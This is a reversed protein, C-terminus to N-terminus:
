VLLFSIFGLSLCVFAVLFKSLVVIKRYKNGDLDLGRCWFLLLFFTFFFLYCHLLAM